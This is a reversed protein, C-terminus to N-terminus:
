AATGTAEKTVYQFLDEDTLRGGRKHSMGRFLEWLLGVKGAPVNEKGNLMDSVFGESVGLREAMWKQDRRARDLISKKVLLLKVTKPRLYVVVRVRM